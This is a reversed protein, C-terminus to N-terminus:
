GNTPEKPQVVVKSAPITGDMVLEQRYGQRILDREAIIEEVYAHDERHHSEPLEELFKEYNWVMEWAPKNKWFSMAMFTFSSGVSLIYKWPDPLLCSVLNFVLVIIGGQLAFMMPKLTSLSDKSSRVKSKAEIQTAIENVPIWGKARMIQQVKIACDMEYQSKSVIEGNDMAQKIERAIFREVHKKKIFIPHTKDPFEQREREFLEDTRDLIWQTSRPRGIGTDEDAEILARDLFPDGTPIHEGGTM